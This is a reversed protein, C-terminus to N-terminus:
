SGGSLLNFLIQLNSNLNEFALKLLPLELGSYNLFVHIVM